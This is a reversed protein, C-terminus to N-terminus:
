GFHSRFADAPVSNTQFGLSVCTWWEMFGCLLVRHSLRRSVAQWRCRYMSPWRRARTLFLITHVCHCGRVAGLRFAPIGCILFSRRSCATSSSAWTSCNKKQPGSGSPASLRRTLTGASETCVFSPDHPAFRVYAVSPQWEELIDWRAFRHISVWLSILSPVSGFVKRERASRAQKHKECGLSNVM